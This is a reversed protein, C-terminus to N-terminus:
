TVQRKALDQCGTFNDPFACSGNQVTYARALNAYSTLARKKDNLDKNAASKALLDETISANAKGALGFVGAAIVGAAMRLAERRSTAEGDASARCVFARNNNPTSGKSPSAKLNGAALQTSSSAALQTTTGLFTTTAAM